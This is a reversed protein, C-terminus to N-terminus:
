MNFKGSKLEMQFSVAKMKDILRHVKMQEGKQKSIIYYTKLEDMTYVSTFFTPLKRIARESIINGLVEDRSWATPNEGGIDDLVLIDVAKIAQVLNSKENTSFQEKLDSILTPVNIFACKKGNAALRYILSGLITTKGNQSPGCLYVGENQINAALKSLNLIVLKRNEDTLAIDNLNIDFISKPMNCPEINSLTKYHDLLVNQYPCAEMNLLVVGEEYALHMKYGVTGKPCSALGKCNLCHQYDEQFNLLEVWYDNMMPRTLQNEKMFQMIKPDQCLKDISDKKLQSINSDLKVTERIDKM